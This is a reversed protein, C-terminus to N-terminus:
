TGRKRRTTRASEDPKLKSSNLLAGVLERASRAGYIQPAITGENIMTALGHVLAWSKLSELEETAPTRPSSLQITHVAGSLVQYAFTRAADLDADASALHASSGFMLKFLGPNSTAFAVYAIGAANLRAQPNVAASMEGQMAAAFEQFGLAAIAALLAAKDAFHNYPAAQSVGARRATARLTLAEYGESELIERASRILAARLTGHHYRTGKTSAGNGRSQIRTGKAKIAMGCCLPQAACLGINVSNINM